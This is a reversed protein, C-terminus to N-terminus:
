LDFSCPTPVWSGVIDYELNNISLRLGYKRGMNNRPINQIHIWAMEEDDANFPLGKGTLLM